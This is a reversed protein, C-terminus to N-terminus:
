KKIVKLSKTIENQVVNVIYTGTTLQQGLTITYQADLHTEVLRGTMDYVYVNAKEANDLDITTEFNFPNPMALLTAGGCNVNVNCPTGYASWV